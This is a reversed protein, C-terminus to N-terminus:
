AATGGPAVESLARSIGRPLVARLQEGVGPQGAASGPVGGSALSRAMLVPDVPGGGPGSAAGPGAPQATVERVLKLIAARATLKDGDIQEVLNILPEMNGSEEAQQFLFGIVGDMVNEIVIETEEHIPNEVIGSKQMFSRRALGHLNLMTSLTILYNTNDMGLSGGYTVAVRYDSNFLVAPDYTESFGEGMDFGEIRKRGKCWKEDMAATVALIQGMFAEMDRQAHAQEVNFAGM